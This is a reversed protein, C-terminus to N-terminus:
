RPYNFNVISYGLCIYLVEEGDTFQAKLRQALAETGKISLDSTNSSMLNEILMMVVNHFFFDEHGKKWSEIFDERSKFDLTQVILPLVRGRIASAFDSKHPYYAQIASKYSDFQKAIREYSIAQWGETVFLEWIYADFLQKKREKEERTIRAM